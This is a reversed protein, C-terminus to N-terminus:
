STTSSLVVLNMNTTSGSTNTLRITGDTPYTLTFTAGASTGNQSGLLVFSSSVGRGFGAYVARTATLSSGVNSNSVMIHAMFGAGGSTFVYDIFSNNAVNTGVVEGVKTFTSGIHVESASFTKTSDGNISAKSTDASEINVGDCYLVATTGQPIFVGTGSVTQILLTFAGSTKNDVQFRKVNAPFQVISNSGLTGTFEYVSYATAENTTLVVTGGTIVKALMVDAIKNPTISADQVTTPTGVIGLYRVYIVVNDPPVPSFLLTQAAITYDINPRQTVGAVTVEVAQAFGPNYTLPYGAAYTTANSTFNDTLYQEFQPYKGYYM